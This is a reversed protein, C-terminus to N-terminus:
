GPGRGSARAALGAICCSLSALSALNERTLCVEPVRVGFTRESLLLLEVICFSDLGVEALPTHEDLDVHEAVLNDRAYAVLQEGIWAPDITTSM